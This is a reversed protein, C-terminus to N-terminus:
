IAGIPLYRDISKQSPGAKAPWGSKSQHRLNAWLLAPISGVFQLKYSLVFHQDHDRLILKVKCKKTEPNNMVLQDMM